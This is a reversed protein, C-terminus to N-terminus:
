SEVHSTEQVYERMLKTNSENVMKMAVRQLNDWEFDKKCYASRVELIRLALSKHKSSERMLDACFKDGDNLSHRDLFEMLDAHAEPNYSQLQAAVIKVAIYTFFQHLNKAAKAEPSAEGFGPVFMKNCHVHTPQSTRHKWPRPPLSKITNPKPSLFTPPSSLRFIASSEM